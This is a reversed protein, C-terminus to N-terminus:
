GKRKLPERKITQKEGHKFQKVPSPKRPDRNLVDDKFEPNKM